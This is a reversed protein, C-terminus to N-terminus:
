YGSGGPAPRQEASISSSSQESSSGFLPGLETPDNALFVESDPPITVEVKAGFDYLELTTITEVSGRESENGMAITLKRAFGDEDVWVHSPRMELGSQEAQDLIKKRLEPNASSYFDELTLKVRYHTTDIGRVDTSGLEEIDSEEVKNFYDFFTQPQTGSASAPNVGVQRQFGSSDLKVWKKGEFQSTLREPVQYYAFSDQSLITIDSVAGAPAGLKAAYESMKMTLQGRRNEFDIFGETNIVLDEPYPALPTGSGAFDLKTEVTMLMRASGIKDSNERLTTLTQVPNVSQCAIAVLAFLLTLLTLRISKM